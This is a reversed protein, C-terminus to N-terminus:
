KNRHMAELAYALRQINTQMNNILYCMNSFIYFMGVIGVVGAFISSWTHESTLFLVFLFIFFVLRAADWFMGFSLSYDPKTYYEIDKIFKVQEEAM